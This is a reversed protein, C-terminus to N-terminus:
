MKFFLRSETSVECEIPVFVFSIRYKFNEICHRLLKKNFPKLYRTLKCVIHLKRWNELVRREESVPKGVPRSFDYSFTM